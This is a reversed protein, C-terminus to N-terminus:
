KKTYGEQLSVGKLEHNEGYFCLIAKVEGTTRCHSGMQLCTGIGELASKELNTDYEGSCLNGESNNTDVNFTSIWGEIRRQSLDAEVNKKKQQKNNKTSLADGEDNDNIDGYIYQEWIARQLVWSQGPSPMRCLIGKDWQISEPTSTLPLVIENKYLNSNGENDCVCDVEQGKKAAPRNNNLAGGSSSRVLNQFFPPNTTIVTRVMQQKSQELLRKPFSLCCIINKSAKRNVLSKSLLHAPPSDKPLSVYSGCDFFLFGDDARNHYMRKGTNENLFKPSFKDDSDNPLPTLQPLLLSVERIGQVAGGCSRMVEEVDGRKTDTGETPYHHYDEWPGLINDIFTDFRPPPCFALRHNRNCETQSSCPIYYLFQLLFPLSLNCLLNMM